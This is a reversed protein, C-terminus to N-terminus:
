DSTNTSDRPTPKSDVLPNDASPNQKQSVPGANPNGSIKARVRHLAEVTMLTDPHDKGLVNERSKLVQSYIESARDVHGEQELYYASSYRM